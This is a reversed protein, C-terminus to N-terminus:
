PKLHRALFVAAHHEAHYRPGAGGPRGIFGVHGGLESFATRLFRNRVTLVSESVERPLFPDDLSHILLTPRRARELFGRSSSRAYYDEAGQFGHLPATVHEDFLRITPAALGRELDIRGRLLAEKARMKRRLSRLFYLSYLRGMPGQELQTAGRSLDFPVSIACAASVPSDEGREGLHKLLVNGGLSFGLAGVPRGPFTEGIWDLALSLDETEGSHYARATRNPEGSCGRFNMGVGQMGEERLHLLAELVYRRRSSGELGHLVLVVPADPSPPLTDPIRVCV